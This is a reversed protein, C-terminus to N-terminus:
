VLALGASNSRPSNPERSLGSERLKRKEHAMSLACLATFFVAVLPGSTSLLWGEAFSHVVSVTALVFAGPGGLRATSIILVYAVVILGLSVAGGAALARLPTSAVEESLSELGIGSWPSVSFAARAAELSSARTNFDRGLFLTELLGRVTESALLGFAIGFVALSYLANMRRLRWVGAGLLMLATAIASARSGTLFILPVCAAILPVTARPTPIGALALMLLLVLVFGLLNANDSIGRMRGGASGISPLAFFAAASVASFVVLPVALSWGLQSESLKSLAAPIIGLVVAGLMGNIATTSESHVVAIWLLPIVLAAPILELRHRVRSVNTAPRGILAVSALLAGALLRLVIPDVPVTNLTSGALLFLAVAAGVRVSAPALLSFAAITLGIFSYYIITDALM